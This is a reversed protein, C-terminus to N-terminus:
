RCSGFSGLLLSMMLFLHLDVLKEGRVSGLSAETAWVCYGLTQMALKRKSSCRSLSTGMSHSPPPRIYRASTKILIIFGEQYKGLSFEAKERRELWGGSTSTALQYDLWNDKNHTNTWQQSDDPEQCIDLGNGFVRRAHESKPFPISARPLLWRAFSFFFFSTLPHHADVVWSGDHHTHM